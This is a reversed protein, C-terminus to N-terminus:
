SLRYHCTRRERPTGTRRGMDIQLNHSTTRLKALMSVDKYSFISKYSSPHELLPNISLYTVYRSRNEEAKKRIQANIKTFYETIIDDATNYKELLKDYHAVEKLNYRRGLTVAYMLPDSDSLEVVKMWFKFEKVLVYTKVSPVGLEVQLFETPTTM